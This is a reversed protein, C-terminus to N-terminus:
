LAESHTQSPRAELVLVPPVILWPGGHVSYQTAEKRLRFRLWAPTLLNLRHATTRSHWGCPRITVTDETYALIPNNHHHVVTEGRDETAFLWTEYGLRKQKAGNLLALAQHHNEITKLKLNTM